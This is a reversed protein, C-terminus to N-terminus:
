NYDFADRLIGPAFMGTTNLRLLTPEGRSERVIQFPLSFV